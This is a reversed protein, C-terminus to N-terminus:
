GDLIRRERAVQLAKSKTELQWKEAIKQM